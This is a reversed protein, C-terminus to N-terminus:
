FMTVSQHQNIRISAWASEHQDISASASAPERQERKPKCRRQEPPPPSPSPPPSSPAGRTTITTCWQHQHSLITSCGQQPATVLLLHNNSFNSTLEASCVSNCIFISFNWLNPSLNFVQLLNIKYWFIQLCNLTQGNSLILLIFKHIFTRRQIKLKRPLQHRLLIVRVRNRLNLHEFPFVSEGFDPIWLKPSSGNSQQSLSQNSASNPKQLKMSVENCGSNVEVVQQQRWIFEWSKIESQSFWIELFGLPFFIDKEWKEKEADSEESLKCIDQM